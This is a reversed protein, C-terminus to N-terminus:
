SYNPNNGTPMTINVRKGEGLFFMVGQRLFEDFMWYLQPVVLPLVLLGERMKIFPPWGAKISNDM